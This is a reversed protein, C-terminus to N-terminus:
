GADTSSSSSTLTRPLRTAITEPLAHSIGAPDNVCADILRTFWDLREGKLADALTGRVVGGLRDRLKYGLMVGFTSYKPFHLQNALEEGILARSLTYFRKTVSRQQKPETIGAVQWAANALANAMIVSEWTPQPELALGVVRLRDSEEQTGFLLPEPVGMLWGTYHWIHMFGKREEPNADVGLMAAYSLLGSSFTANALALHAASVPVGHTAEEWVPTKKLMQRFKAHVLRIRVSLKWGDGYVGLGGPIFVEVVHRINQRLRRIGQETLRGTTLFSHSILTSFGEVLVGAAEALIFRDFHRHFMRFGPRCISPDFWPPIEKLEGFFRRVSEPADVLAADDKTMGAAVLRIAESRTLEGLDRITDDALPDGLTTHRIYERGLELHEPSLADFGPRYVEPVLLSGARDSGANTSASM